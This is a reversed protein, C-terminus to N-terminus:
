GNRAESIVEYPYRASRVLGPWVEEIREEEWDIFYSQSTGDVWDIEYVERHGKYGAHAPPNAWQKGIAQEIWNRLRETEIEEWNHAETNWRWKGIVRPEAKQTGDLHKRIANKADEVTRYIPGIVNGRCMEESWAWGCGFREIMEGRYFYMGREM